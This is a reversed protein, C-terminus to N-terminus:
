NGYFDDRPQGSFSIKWRQAGADTSPAAEIQGLQLTQFKPKLVLTLKEAIGPNSVVFTFNAEVKKSADLYSEGPARGVKFEMLDVSIGKSVTTSLSQL